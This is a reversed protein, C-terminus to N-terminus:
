RRNATPWQGLPCLGDEARREIETRPCKRCVEDICEQCATQRALYVEQTSAKRTPSYIERLREYQTFELVLYDGEVRGCALVTDLYSEPRNRAVLKLELLSVKAGSNVSTSSLM